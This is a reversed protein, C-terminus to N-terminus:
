RRSALSGYICELEEMVLSMQKELAKYMEKDKKKATLRLWKMRIKFYMLALRISKVFRKTFFDAVGLGEVVSMSYMDNLVEEKDYGDNYEHGEPILFISLMEAPMNEFGSEYIAQFDLYQAVTMESADKFLRYKRGNIEYHRRAKEPVPKTLLFETKDMYVRVDNLPIQLMEEYPIEAIIAAVRLNKEDNTALQLADIERIKMLDGITLDKWSLKM